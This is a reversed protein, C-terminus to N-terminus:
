PRKGSLTRRIFGTGWGLHMTPLALAVGFGPLGHKIVAAITAVSVVVAYLGPVLAAILPRQLGVAAVGGMVVGVVLGPAALQRWRLSGPHRALMERKWWGYQHYQSWLGALDSRPRYAVELKPEFWVVGGTRRIRWNLEYDQNRLFRTDFGGTRELASRRYVGLYVTDTPGADGGIRYKADGAGFASGMAAAIAREIWTSGVPVQRGGVNDADTDKLTAVATSLYGAPLNSHADCRAIIDYRAAEIARNLGDPTRGGPNDVIVVEEDVFAAASGDGDAVVIEVPGDYDQNHILAITDRLRGDAGLVPIIVSVGPADASGSQAM